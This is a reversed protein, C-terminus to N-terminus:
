RRRGRIPIVNKAAPFYEAVQAHLAEDSSSRRATCTAFHPMARWQPPVIEVDATIARVIVSGLHDRNVVLNARDDDADYRDPDVPMRKRGPITLAWIIDAGCAECNGYSV